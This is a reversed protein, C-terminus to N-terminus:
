VPNGSDATGHSVDGEINLGDTVSVTGDVTISNGGDQINVASAGSANNITVDGIDVGSNAGLTWTGSQAAQVAFTGTGVVTANLNGATAQAVTVSGTVTVDNNTGLNVLMGNTADGRMRDWTTGNFVMGKSGIDIHNETNTEGDNHAADIPVDSTGDSIIVKYATSSPQNATVTGDITISSGGDSVNVTNQINVGVNGGNDTAIAYVNSGDTGMAVTGTPTAVAAGDAYQTGSSAGSVINVPLPKAASVPRMTDSTDEWMIATGTISSDVDGETYQTGGGFSTIQNGSGDIISVDIGRSSGASHSTVSNGSGDQTRTSWTGSQTAAVTGDVTITNGGDQITVTGTVTANLNAATAQAVTFSGTGANATVTGDVTLSGGNDTVPISSNQVTVNANLNSATAQTVSVTGSVAQTAPFNSVSVSGDVTLSGGNDTVPISANQVSVNMTGTGANATVTGSVTVSGDVTISGSNDTIPIASQNSAIVVPASNAMTAQGNANNPNYAM